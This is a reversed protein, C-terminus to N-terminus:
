RGTPEEAPVGEGRRTSRLLRDGFPFRECAWSLLRHLPGDLLLAAPTVVAVALVAGAMVDHPYHVGYAVRAFAIVLALPLAALAARSRAAALAATVAFGITAHNSPYSWDGVPPCEDLLVLADALTRCPRDQAIVLKILESGVYASVVGVGGALLLALTRLDPGRSRWAAWGFLLAAVVLGGDAVVDLGPLAGAFGHIAAYLPAAAEEAYRLAIVAILGCFLM